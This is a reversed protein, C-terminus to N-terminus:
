SSSIQPLCDTTFYSQRQSESNLQQLQPIQVVGYPRLLVINFGM